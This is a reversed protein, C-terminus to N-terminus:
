EHINMIIILKIIITFTIRYQFILIQKYLINNNNNIIIIIQAIRNAM